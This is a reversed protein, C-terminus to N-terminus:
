SLYAQANVLAQTAVSANNVKLSLCKASASKNTLSLGVADLLQKTLSSVAGDVYVM